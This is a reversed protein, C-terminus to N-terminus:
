FPVETILPLNSYPIELPILSIALLIELPSCSFTIHFKCNAPPPPPPTPPPPPPPPPPPSSSKQGHFKWPIYCLRASNEPTSNQKKEPIELSLTFFHFFGLNKKFFYSRLQGTKKRFCGHSIELINSITVM